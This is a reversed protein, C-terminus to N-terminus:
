CSWGKRLFEQRVLDNEYRETCLSKSFLLDSRAARGTIGGRLSLESPRPINVTPGVM